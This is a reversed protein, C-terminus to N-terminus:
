EVTIKMPESVYTHGLRDGVEARVKLEGRLGQRRLEGTLEQPEVILTASDGTEVTTPLGLGGTANFPNVVLRGDIKPTTFALSCLHVPKTGHNGCSILLLSGSTRNGVAMFGFSM